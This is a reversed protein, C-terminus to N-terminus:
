RDVLMALRRMLFGTARRHVLTAVTITPVLLRQDPGPLRVVPRGQTLDGPQPEGEYLTWRGHFARVVVEGLYWAAATLVPHGADPDAGDEAPVTSLLARELREISEPSFDWPGGDPDWHRFAAEQRQLWPGLQSSPPPEGAPDALTFLKAPEWGPRAAVAATLEAHVEAFTRDDARGAARVVLEALVLDSLGLVPDFAVIPGGSWRWRGGAVRMYSEGVYTLAARLFDDRVVDTSEDPPWEDVLLPELLTLSAVSFDFPFDRPLLHYRLNTLVDDLGDLWAGTPEDLDDGPGPNVIRVV